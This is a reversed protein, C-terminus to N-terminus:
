SLQNEIKRRAHILMTDGGISEPLLTWLINRIFDDVLQLKGSRNTRPWRFCSYWVNSFDTKTLIRIYAKLPHLTENPTSFGKNLAWVHIIKMLQRTIKRYPNQGSPEFAVISKGTTVESLEHLAKKPDPLHHLVGGCFSLDFANERFPLREVDAQIIEYSGRRNSHAFANEQARRLEVASLDIGVVEFGVNALRIGWAGTGTGVDLLRKGKGPVLNLLGFVDDYRIWTSDFDECLRKEYASKEVSKDQM